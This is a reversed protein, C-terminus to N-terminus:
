QEFPEECEHELQYCLLDFWQKDMTDLALDILYHISETYPMLMFSTDDFVLIKRGIIYNSLIYNGKGDKGIYQMVSGYLEEGFDNCNLKCFQTKHLKLNVM